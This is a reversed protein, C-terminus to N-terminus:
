DVEREEVHGLRGDWLSMSQEQKWLTLVKFKRLNCLECEQLSGTHCRGGWHQLEVEQELWDSLRQEAKEKSDYIGLINSDAQTVYVIRPEGGESPSGFSEVDAMEAEEAEVIDAWSETSSITDSSLPPFDELSFNPVEEKSTDKPIEARKEFVSADLSDWDEFDFTQPQLPTWKKLFSSVFHKPLNWTHLKPSNDRNAPINYKCPLEGWRVMLVLAAYVHVWDKSVKESRLHYYRKDAEEQSLTRDNDRFSLYWKLFTNTCLRNGSMGRSKLRSDSQGRYSEHHKYMLLTWARLFQESCNFWCSFKPRRSSNSTELLGCILDGSRPIVQNKCPSFELSGGIFDLEAYDNSHFYAEREPSPDTDRIGYEEPIESFGYFSKYRIEWEKKVVEEDRPIEEPSFSKTRVMDNGVDFECLKASVFKKRAVFVRGVRRFVLDGLSDQIERKLESLSEQPITPVFSKSM